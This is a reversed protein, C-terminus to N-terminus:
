KEARPVVPQVWAREPEGPQSPNAKVKSSTVRARVYLEDGRLTYSATPGTVTALVAGVSPSYRRTTRLTQGEPGRVVESARDYGRRTGIFETTYTVGQEAEIEIAIGRADRRVDRLGVGSSAYFDGAEMAAVLKEARLEEARVMVWGRGPRSGKQAESHYNHSDDTGVGYVVSKGLEGLRATLIVDWMRDTGAREETGENFVQPHGNYVEFFRESEVQAMEEATLAWRFNPHNIHAIMPVGTRARQAAVAGLNNELVEVISNGGQPKILERLNTANMHIPATLYRDTIEESQIILFPGPEDFKQRYEELMRLRVQRVGEVERQEVWGAGFRALYKAFAAEGGRNKAIGIWYEHDALINHDSLALFHYGRSKYWDAIMEPFDDGDSWLSHTHLNGKWWRAPAAAWASSSLLFAAALFLRLFHVFHV